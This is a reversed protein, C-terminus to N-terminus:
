SEDGIGCKSARVRVPMHRCVEDLWMNRVSGKYASRSGNKFANRSTHKLAEQLCNGKRDWHGVPFNGEEMHECIENLWGKMRSAEYAGRSSRQFDIRTSYKKAEKICNDKDWFGPPANPANM